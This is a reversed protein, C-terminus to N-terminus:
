SETGARDDQAPCDAEIWRKIATVRWRRCRGLRIAKPMRKLRALNEVTRWHVGLLEAVGHIDLLEARSPETAVPM